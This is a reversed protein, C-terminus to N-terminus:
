NNTPTNFKVRKASSGRCVDCPIECRENKAEEDWCYFESGKDREDRLEKTLREIDKDKQALQEKLKDNENSVSQFDVRSRAYKNDSRSVQEKLDYVQLVLVENQGHVKELQEKLKEIQYVHIDFRIFKIDSDNKYDLCSIGNSGEKKYFYIVEPFDKEIEPM